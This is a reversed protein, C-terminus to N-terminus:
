YLKAEKLVSTKFSGASLFAYKAANLRSAVYGACFWGHKSIPEPEFFQLQKTGGTFVYGREPNM